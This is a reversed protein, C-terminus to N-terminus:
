ENGGWGATHEPCPKEHDLMGIQLFNWPHQHTESFGWNGAELSSYSPCVPVFRLPQQVLAEVKSKKSRYFVQITQRGSVSSTAAYGKEMSSGLKIIHGWYHISCPQYIPWLMRSAGCQRIFSWCWTDASYVASTSDRLQPAPEVLPGAAEPSTRSDTQHWVGVDGVGNLEDGGPAKSEGRTHTGRSRQTPLPACRHASRRKLGRAAQNVRISILLNCGWLLSCVSPLPTGVPPRQLLRKYIGSMGLM